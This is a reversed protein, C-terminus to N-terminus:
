AYAEVKAWKANAPAKRLGAQVSARFVSIEGSQVRAAIAPFECELRALYYARSGNAPAKAIAQSAIAVAEAETKAVDDAIPTALEEVAVPKAVPQLETERRAAPSLGFALFIFGGLELGLPLLLPGYMAVTAESIGLVAALRASGPDAAVVPAATALAARAAKVADEAARCKSGRKKCEDAQTTQASKYAEEALQAKLNIQGASAIKGDAYGSSRSISASLSFLVALSFFIWLVIAKVPQGTKAAREAAPPTFAACITIIIGAAVLPSAWGEAHAIHTANLWVAVSTLAIGGVTAAIKWIPTSTIMTSERKGTPQM